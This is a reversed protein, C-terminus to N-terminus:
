KIVTQNIRVPSFQFIFSNLLNLKCFIIMFLSKQEVSTFTFSSRRRFLLFHNWTRIWHLTNLNVLDNFPVSSRGPIIRVKMVFCRAVGVPDNDCMDLAQLLESDVPFATVMVVTVVVVVVIPQSVPGTLLPEPAWTLPFLRFIDLLSM